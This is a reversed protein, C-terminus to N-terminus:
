DVAMAASELNSAVAEALIYVDPEVAALTNPVDEGVFSIRFTASAGTNEVGLAVVCDGELSVGVADLTKPAVGVISGAVVLAEGEELLTADLAVAEAKNEVIGGATDDGGATVLVGSVM